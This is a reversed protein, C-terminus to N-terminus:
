KCEVLNSMKEFTVFDFIFLFGEKTCFVCFIDNKDKIIKGFKM